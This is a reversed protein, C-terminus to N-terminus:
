YENELITPHAVGLYLLVREDCMRNNVLSVCCTRAFGGQAQRGSRYGWAWVHIERRVDFGLDRTEIPKVETMERKEIPRAPIGEDYSGGVVV